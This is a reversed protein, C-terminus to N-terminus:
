RCCSDQGFLRLIAWAFSPLMYRCSRSAAADHLGRMPLILGDIRIRPHALIEDAYQYLWPDKVVYPHRAQDGHLISTELGAEADAYLTASPHRSLATDLGLETLYKVLLTTGARGIGGILLHHSVEATGPIAGRRRVTEFHQTM